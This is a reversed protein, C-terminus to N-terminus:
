AFLTSHQNLTEVVAECRRDVGTFDMHPVYYQELASHTDKADKLSVVADDLIDQYRNKAESIEDIEDKIWPAACESLPYVDSLNGEPMLEPHVTFLLKANPIHVHELLTPDIPKHYYEVDLGRLQAHRGVQKLLESRGSGPEGALGVVRTDSRLLSAALHVEGLPTISSIFCHREAGYRMDTNAPPLLDCLSRAMAHLQRPNLAAASVSEANGLLLRAAKLQRYVKHFKRESTANIAIIKERHQRIGDLDWYEGLNLIEDVAGPNRPDFVHHGTAAVVVSRIEPITVADYSEPDLSCHQYELEYGQEAFAEGIHNIFTSKGTGPGGKVIIMKANDMDPLFNFFSHFGEASNCGFFCRAVHPRNEM